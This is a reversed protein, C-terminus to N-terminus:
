SASWFAMLAEVASGTVSAGGAAETRYLSTSKAEAEPSGSRRSARIGLSLPVSTVKARMLRKSPNSELLESQRPRAYIDEACIAKFQGAAPPLKSWSDTM